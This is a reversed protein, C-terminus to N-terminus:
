IVNKCMTKHAYIMYIHMVWDIKQCRKSCYYIFQCSSCKYWKAVKKNSQVHHRLHAEESMRGNKIKKKGVLEKNSKGYKHEHYSKGCKENGCVIGHRGGCVIGHVFKNKQKKLLRHKTRLFSSKRVKRIYNMNLLSAIEKDNLLIYLHQYVRYSIHVSLIMFNMEISKSMKWHQYKNYNYKLFPGVILREFYQGNGTLMFWKLHRIKTHKLIFTCIGSAINGHLGFNMRWPYNPITDTLPCSSIIGNPFYFHCTNSFNIWKDYLNCGLSIYRQFLIKDKKFYNLCMSNISNSVFIWCWNSLSFYKQETSSFNDDRFLLELKQFHSSQLLSIITCQSCLTTQIILQFKRKDFKQRFIDISSILVQEICEKKNIFLHHQCQKWSELMQTVQDSDLSVNKAFWANSM